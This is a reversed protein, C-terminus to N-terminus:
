VPVRGTALLERLIRLPPNEGVLSAPIKGQAHLRQFVRTTALSTYTIAMHLLYEASPVRRGTRAEYYAVTESLGMFGPLRPAGEAFGQAMAYDMMVYFAVDFAPIGFHAFEFDLLGCPALESFLMNRLSADGWVFGEAFAATPRERELYGVATELEPYHGNQAVLELYRRWYGLMRALANEGPVALQLAPQLEPPVVIAHLEAIADIGQQWLRERAPTSLERIWGERVYSPWDPASLGRRREMLLFPSGIVAPDAEFALARPVRASGTGALQMARFQQGLDTVPYVPYAPALRMVAEEVTAGGFRTGELRLFFLESSAGSSAPVQIDLLKGGGGHDRLWTTLGAALRAADRGSGTALTSQVVRKSTAALAPSIAPATM